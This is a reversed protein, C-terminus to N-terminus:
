PIIGPGNEPVLVRPTIGPNGINLFVKGLFPVKRHFSNNKKPYFHVKRFFKSLKFKKLHHDKFFNARGHEYNIQKQLLIM